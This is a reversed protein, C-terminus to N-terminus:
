HAALMEQITARAPQDVEPIEVRGRRLIFSFGFGSAQMQGHCGMCGGMNFGPNQGDPREGNYQVNKVRTGDPKFDTILDTVDVDTYPAPLKPQAQGSWVQLRHSTEIVINAQYYVGPYRLVEDANEPDGGWDQGPVPKDAPRWQVSVLKFYEWPSSGIGQERNYAAIAEHVRRNVQVVPQPIEHARRNVAITGQTTPTGAANQYYLRKGPVSDAMAPTMRQVSAPTAPNASVANRAQILPETTPARQDHIRDGARNELARGSEDLLNDAQEFTAWISYPASETKVKIHMGVLGWEADRYCPRGPDGPVGAYDKGSQQWRYYRATTTYFRGSAREEASLVRWAAKVEVTGVPFSVYDTSGAPPNRHQESVFRQTAAYPIVSGPDGGDYWSNGTVYVYHERNGKVTYLIRQGPDDNVSVVGAFISDPGAEHAESLNVWPAPESVVVAADCAPAQGQELGPYYGVKEPDFVYSPPQDFGFDRGAGRDSGHPSGAGPFIESKSRFTEWVLPGSYGPDALALSRDPVGRTGPDGTQPVAPWSLGIMQQWAFRAAESLSAMSAGGTIDAPADPSMAIFAPQTTRSELDGCGQLLLVVSLMVMGIRVTM